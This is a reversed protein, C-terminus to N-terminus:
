IANLSNMAACMKKVTTRAATEANHNNGYGRDVYMVVIDSDKGDIAVHIGLFGCAVIPMFISGISWVGQVTTTATGNM